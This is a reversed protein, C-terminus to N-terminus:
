SEHWKYWYSLYKTYISFKSDHNIMPEWLEAANIIVGGSETKPKSYFHEPLMKQEQERLLEEVEKMDSILRLKQM